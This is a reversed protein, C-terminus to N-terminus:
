KIHRVSLIQIGTKRFHAQVAQVDQLSLGTLILEAKGDGLQNVAGAGRTLFDFPLCANTSSELGVQRGDDAKLIYALHM